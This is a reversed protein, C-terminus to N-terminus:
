LRSGRERVETSLGDPLSGFRDQAGIVRVAERVETETAGQRGIAVNDFVTGDFLFGEQPVVVIRERLSALTGDRLEVGGFTVGGETPDYMRSMLKALTSKGAGTPGVLALREGQDVTLSVDDLVRTVNDYSFSVHEVVLDGSSPLDVAGPRETLTSRIDLLDFIKKLAAGSEQVTNFLQSLQQIPEFLNVMYLVFAAVTGVTILKQHVLIGGIGVIAATTSVGALEIIPFYRASIRVANLNADLQAHNRSVFVQDQTDERAFAQVVRVGSLSEQLTSLTQSIRDRVTLYAANSDRRFRVSAIIVVPMSMLCVVALLPSLLLLFAMTLVVLLANQVFLVLGQQVLNQLADIDSTMRGVLRGTPQTDFFAMGMAQIHDFIRLRLDRLFSEGVRTILLVSWRGLIVAVIASVLFGIAAADLAAGDHRRLGHDIGYRVLQPGALIALTYVFLTVLAAIAVWKYPRLMRVSRRVVRRAERPSLKEDESVAGSGWWM